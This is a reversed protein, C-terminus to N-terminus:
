IGKDHAISEGIHDRELVGTINSAPYGYTDPEHNVGCFVVPTKVKNKLYPVVFMSQANDDAAIVGDPRFDLYMAYAEKAKQPGGEINRKTDMYFYKLDCVGEIESDIGEKIEKVWPMSEHYSMVVLVKFSSSEGTQPFSFFVALWILVIFPCFINKIFM